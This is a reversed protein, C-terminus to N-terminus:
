GAHTRGWGRRVAPPHRGRHPAPGRGPERRCLTPGRAGAPSPPGRQRVDADWVVWGAQPTALAWYAGIGAPWLYRCGPWGKQDSPKASCRPRRGQTPAAGPRPALRPTRRDRRTPHRPSPLWSRPVAYRRWAQSATLSNRPHRHLRPLPKHCGRPLYRGRNKTFTTIPPGPQRLLHGLGTPLRRGGPRSLLRGRDCSPGVRHVRPMPLPRVSL